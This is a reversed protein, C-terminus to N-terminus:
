KDGVDSGQDGEKGNMDSKRGCGTGRTYNYVGARELKDHM